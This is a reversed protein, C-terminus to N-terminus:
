KRTWEMILADEKPLDYFGKRIGLEEFEHKKYLAIASDNSVRVELVIREIDHERAENFVYEMMASGTGNKRRSQDVAVNTIEGEEFSVYMCIYGVVKNECEAVVLINEGSEMAALFANESWPISFNSAEIAAVEPIDAETMKRVLM